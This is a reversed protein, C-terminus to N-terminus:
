RPLDNGESGEPSEYPVGAAELLSRMEEEDAAQQEPTRPRDRDLALELARRLRPDVSGSSGRSGTGETPEGGAPDTRPTTGSGEPPTTGGPEGEGGAGGPQVPPANGLEGM